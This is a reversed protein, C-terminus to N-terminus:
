LLDAAREGHCDDSRKARVARCIDEALYNRKVEAESISGKEILVREFVTPGEAASLYAEMIEEKTYACGSAESIREMDCAMAVIVESLLETYRALDKGRTFIVM